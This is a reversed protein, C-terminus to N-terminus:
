EMNLLCYKPLFKFERLIAIFGHQNFQLDEQSTWYIYFQNIEAFDFDARAPPCNMKTINRHIRCTIVDLFLGERSIFPM